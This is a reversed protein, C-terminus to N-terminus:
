LQPLGAVVSRLRGDYNSAMGIKYGRRSLEVLTSEADAACRWSAPESFHRFLGDFSKQSDDVDNIVYAVIRRWREVEREESTRLDNDFDLVDEKKFAERFRGSVAEPELRSGLLQAAAAYVIPAPPDPYILTGVADFFVARIAASPM